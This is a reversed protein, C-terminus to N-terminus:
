DDTETIILVAEESYYKRLVMFGPYKDKLEDLIFLDDTRESFTLIVADLNGYGETGTMKDVDVRDRSVTVDLFDTFQFGYKFKNVDAIIIKNWTLERFLAMNNREAIKATTPSFREPDNEM